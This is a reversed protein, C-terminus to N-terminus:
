EEVTEEAGAVYGEQYGENYGTNYGDKWLEDESMATEATAQQWGELSDYICGDYWYETQVSRALSAVGANQKWVGDLTLCYHPGDSDQLDDFQFETFYLGSEQVADLVKRCDAAFATGDAYPGNLTVYLRCFSVDDAPLTALTLRESEEATLGDALYLQVTADYIEPCAPSLAEYVQERLERNLRNQATSRGPGIYNLLTPAVAACGAGCLLVFCVLISLWDYRLKEGPRIASVLMEVGLLILVVPSFRLITIIDLSPSVLTALLLAGCVILTLGLTLTGVRRTRVPASDTRPPTPATQQGADPSTQEPETRPIKNNEEM